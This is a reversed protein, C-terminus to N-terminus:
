ISGNGPILYFSSIEPLVCTCGKFITLVYLGGDGTHELSMWTMFVDNQAASYEINERKGVRYYKRCDINNGKTGTGSSYMIIAEDQGMHIYVRVHSPENRGM